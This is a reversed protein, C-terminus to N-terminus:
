NSSSIMTCSPLHQMKFTFQKTLKRVTEEEGEKLSVECGATYLEDAYLTFVSVVPSTISVASLTVSSNGSFLM